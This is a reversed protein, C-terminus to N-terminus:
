SRTSSQITAIIDGSFINWNLDRYYRELAFACMAAYRKPEDVINTIAQAYMEATSDLPLLVGSAGDAVIDPIGGTACSIVPLGHAAAECFVIGYCEARSPVFFFHAQEYLDKIKQAERPVSKRLWGHQTTFQPQPLDGEYSCGVIDLHAHVGSRVLADHTAVVIDLGKRIPESGVFLLRVDERTPPKVNRAQVPPESLNAGYHIVSLKDRAIGYHTVASQAAWKSPYIVHRAKNLAAIDASRSGDRSEAHWDTFWDYYGDVGAFTGDSTYILPQTFTCFGVEPTVIAYVVDPQTERVRQDIADAVRQMNRQTWRAFWRRTRGGSLCYLVKSVYERARNAGSAAGNVPYAPVIEIGQSRMARLMFYPIGSWASPSDFDERGVVLVRM